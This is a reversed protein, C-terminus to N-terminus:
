PEVSELAGVIELPLNPKLFALAETGPQRVNSHLYPECIGKVRMIYPMVLPKEQNNKCRKKWIM